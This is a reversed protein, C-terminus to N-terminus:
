LFLYLSEGTWRNRRLAESLRMFQDVQEMHQCYTAMSTAENLLNMLKLLTRYFNGEFFEYHQCIASSSEGSFWLRMPEMWECSLSRIHQREGCWEVEQEQLVALREEMKEWRKELTITWPVDDGGEMSEKGKEGLFSSLFLIAEEDTLGEFLGMTYAETLGIPDGENVETALIGKHTLCETDSEVFGCARLFGISEEVRSLPTGYVQREEELARQQNELEEWRQVDEGAKKWAPGLQHNKLTDLQRQLEKRAANVSQKIQSELTRRKWTESWFPETQPISAQRKRCDEMRKELAHIDRQYHQYWYTTKIHEL